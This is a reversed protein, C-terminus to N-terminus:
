ERGGDSDTHSGHFRNRWDAFMRGIVLSRVTPILVLNITATFCVLVAMLSRPIGGAVLGEGVILVGLSPLLFLLSRGLITSGGVRWLGFLLAVLAGVSLSLGLGFPGLHSVAYPRITITVVCQLAVALIAEFNRFRANLAKVMTYNVLLAWLGVSYGRLISSTESVASTDFAGRAFLTRVVLDSLSFLLISGAISAPLFVSLINSISARFQDNRLTPYVVLATMGIPMALILIGTEAIIRAYDVAAIASTGLTSAERKEFLVEAQAFLPIWMLALSPKTLLRLAGFARRYSFKRDQDDLVLYEKRRIRVALWMTLVFYAGSFGGLILAPLHLLYALVAGVILGVSQGTARITSPIYDGHSLALYSGVIYYLYFPLGLAMASILSIAIASFDDSPRAVLLGVIQPACAIYLVVSCVGLLLLCSRIGRYLWSAQARDITRQRAHEPLFAGSLVDTTAINM